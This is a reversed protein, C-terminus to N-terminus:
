TITEQERTLSPWAGETGKENRQTSGSTLRTAACHSRLVYGATYVLRCVPLLGTERWHAEYDTPGNLWHCRLARLAALLSSEYQKKEAGGMGTNRREARLGSGGKSRARGGRRVRNEESQGGCRRKTKSPGSWRGASQSGIMARQSHRLRGNETTPALLTGHTNTM